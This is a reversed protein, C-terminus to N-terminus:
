RGEGRGQHMLGLWVALGAGLNDFIIVDFISSNRGPVFGQHIEDSIAYLVALFWALGFRKPQNGLIRRYSLALLGYGLLHSSKKIFYDWNLFDPLVSGPQSSLMFIVAMMFVAPFWLSVISPIMKM